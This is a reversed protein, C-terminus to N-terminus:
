APSLNIIGENEDFQYRTTSLKPFATKLINTHLVCSRHVNELTLDMFKVTGRAKEEFFRIHQLQPLQLDGLMDSWVDGENFITLDFSQLEQFRNLRHIDERQEDDTEWSALDIGLHKIGFPLLSLWSLTSSGHMFYLHLSQLQELRVFMAGALAHAQYGIDDTDDIYLLVKTVQTCDVDRLYLLASEISRDDKAAQSAQHWTHCALDMEVTHPHCKKHAIQLLVDHPLRAWDSTIM